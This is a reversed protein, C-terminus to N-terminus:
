NVPSNRTNQPEAMELTYEEERQEFTSSVTDVGVAVALSASAQWISSPLLLRRGKLSRSCM